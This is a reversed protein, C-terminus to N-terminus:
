FEAGLSLAVDLGFRAMRFAERTTGESDQYQFRPRTLRWPLGVRLQAYTPGLLPARLSASAAAEFWLQRSVYSRLFERASVDLRGLRADACLWLEPVRNLVTVCALLALSYARYSLTGRPESEVPHEQPLSFRGELGLSGWSRHRLRVRVLPAFSAAPAAGAFMALGAELRPRIAAASPRQVRATARSPVSAEVARHPPPAATPLTSPDPDSPESAFLADLQAAIAAPLEIGSDGQRRLTISIILAVVADLKRCDPGSISLERSGYLTGDPDSVRIVATFGGDEVPGVHGEIVLVADRTRSFVERGLRQEVRQALDVAAICGEAGALRVWNLAVGLAPGSQAHARTVVVVLLGALVCVHTPLRWQQFM